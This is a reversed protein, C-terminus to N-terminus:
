KIQTKSSLENITKRLVADIISRLRSPFYTLLLTYVNRWQTPGHRVAMRAYYRAGSSENFHIAQVAQMRYWLGLYRSLGKIRPYERLLQNLMATVKQAPDANRYLGSVCYLVFPRTDYALPYRVALRAWTVLDEGNAIGEPFGGISCIASRQVCTASTFVPPDSRAAKEFYDVLLGRQFCEKGRLRSIYSASGLPQIEYGTAYWQADPFDVVLNLISKLFKPRWIDDADLFAILESNACNIGNNRAVSVGANVQRVVRIRFDQLEDVLAAGGDTSGDDVVILEWNTVTQAKVSEITNLVQSAKNYLPMIISVIPEGFENSRLLM